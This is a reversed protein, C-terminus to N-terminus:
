LFDTTKESALGFFPLGTDIESNGSGDLDIRIFIDTEKTTRTLEATRM